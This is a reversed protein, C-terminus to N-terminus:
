LIDLHHKANKSDMAALKMIESVHAHLAVM